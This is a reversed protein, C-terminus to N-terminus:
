IYITVSYPPRLTTYWRMPPRFKKKYLFLSERSLWSKEWFSVRISHSFYKFDNAETKINCNNLIIKLKLLWVFNTLKCIDILRFNQTSCKPRICTGFALSYISEAQRDAQRNTQIWYVDFRIFRDPGFKTYSM